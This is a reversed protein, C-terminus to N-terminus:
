GNLRVDNLFFLSSKAKRTPGNSWPLVLASRWVDRVSFVRSVNQMAKGNGEGLRMFVKKM